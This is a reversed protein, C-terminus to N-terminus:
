YVKYGLAILYETHDAFIQNPDIKKLKKPRIFQKVIRKAPCKLQPNFVQDQHIPQSVCKLFIVSWQLIMLIAILIFSIWLLM